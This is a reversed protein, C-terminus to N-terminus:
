DIFELSDGSSNRFYSEADAESLDEDDDVRDPAKRWDGGSCQLITVKTGYAVRFMKAKGSRLLSWQKERDLKRALDERLEVGPTTLVNSPLSAGIPLRYEAVPELEVVAVRAGELDVRYIRAGHAVYTQGDVRVLQGGRLAELIAQRSMEVPLATSSKSPDDPTTM